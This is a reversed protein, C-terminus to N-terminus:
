HVYVTCVSRLARTKCPSQVQPCCSLHTIGLVTQEVREGKLGEAVELSQKFLSAIAFQFQGERQKGETSGQPDKGLDVQRWRSLRTITGVGVNESEM